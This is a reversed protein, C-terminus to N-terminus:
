FERDIERLKDYSEKLHDPVFKRGFEWANEEIEALLKQQVEEDEYMLIRLDHRHKKFDLYYGIEHYLLLLAINEENEKLKFNVKAQYGNIQLYNFKITNTSVNYSMPANLENNFEYNIALDHEELTDKIIKEVDWIYLM